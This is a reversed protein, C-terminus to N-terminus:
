PFSIRPRQELPVALVLPRPYAVTLRGHYIAWFESCAWGPLNSLVGIQPIRLLFTRTSPKKRGAGTALQPEDATRRERHLENAVRGDSALMRQEVARAM